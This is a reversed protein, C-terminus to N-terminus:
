KILISITDLGNWQDVPEFFIDRQELVTLGAEFALHGFLAPDMSARGAVNNFSLDEAGLIHSHHIWVTGGPKLVRYAEKLYAATVNAHMHVFSDFSFVLDQSLDEVGALSKGDGILYRDVHNGLKQRTASICNPNLDIVTLKGALISLFQTIRGHGPAIETITKGRFAKLDNFIWNNWLNETTGFSKSWEHGGDVWIDTNDWFRQEDINYFTTTM